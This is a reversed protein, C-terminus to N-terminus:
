STPTRATSEFTIARGGSTSRSRAREGDEQLRVLEDHISDLRDPKPDNEEDELRELAQTLDNLPENLYVPTRRAPTSIGDIALGRDVGRLDHPSTTRGTAISPM